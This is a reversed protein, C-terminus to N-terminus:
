QRKVKVDVGNEFRSEPESKMLWHCYQTTESSGKVSAAAKRKGDVAKRVPTVAEGDDDKGTNDPFYHDSLLFYSILFYTKSQSKMKKGSIAATESVRIKKKPPM